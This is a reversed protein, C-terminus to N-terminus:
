RARALERVSFVETSRLPEVASEPMAVVAISDGLANFVELVYGKEGNLPHPVADVLTAVDGVRLGHEPVDRSISVQSFLPIM